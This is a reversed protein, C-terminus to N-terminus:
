PCLENVPSLPWTFCKKVKEDNDNEDSDDSDDDDDDDDLGLGLRLRKNAEEIRAKKLENFELLKELSDKTCFAQKLKEANEIDAIQIELNVGYLIKKAVKPSSIGRLKMFSDLDRVASLKFLPYDAKEWWLVPM